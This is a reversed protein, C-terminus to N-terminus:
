GETWRYIGPFEFYRLFEFIIRVNTYYAGWVKISSGHSFILKDTYCAGTRHWGICVQESTYIAPQRRPVLSMRIYLCCPSLPFTPTTLSLSLSLVASSLTILASSWGGWWAPRRTGDTTNNRYVSGVDVGRHKTTVSADDDERHKLGLVPRNKHTYNKKRLM